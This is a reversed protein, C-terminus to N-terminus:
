GNRKLRGTRKAYREALSFVYLGFPVLVVGSILLPWIDPWLAALGKGHQISARLGDLLYTVPSFIALTQMWDPLVSIPYYVGSILLLIARIIYAMQAGRETFLMPLVASVTGLGILSVSGVLMLVVVVGWNAHSLDMHFFLSMVFLQVATMLFGHIIAFTCIGLMHTIRSIPAMFTYEITGEWREITVTETVSDFVVAIYTWIATGIALYVIIVDLEAQTLHGGSFTSVTKAIFTVALANVINYTVWVAEWAWYRKTFYIGREIFAYGKNAEGGVAKLADRLVTQIDRTRKAEIM